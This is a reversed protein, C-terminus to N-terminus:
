TTQSDKKRNSGLISMSSHVGHNTSSQAGNQTAQNAKSFSSDVVPKVLSEQVSGPVGAKNMSQALSEQTSGQVSRFSSNVSEKAKAGVNEKLQRELAADSIRATDVVVQNVKVATPVGSNDLQSQPMREPLSSNKSNSLFPQSESSNQPAPRQCCSFICHM